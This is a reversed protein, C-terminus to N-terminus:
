KFLNLFRFGQRKIRTLWTGKLEQKAELPTEVLTRGTQDIIRLEGVAQGRQIPLELEAWHIFARCHPEESPFYSFGVPKPAYAILTAEAGEIEHSFLQDQAVLERYVLEEQFAAEFLRKADEYRSIKSCGLVVAILTRGQHHAAATLTAMSQSHYGTKGGISKAYHHKGPKLLQNFTVLEAKPSKNSKPRHYSIKSILDRFKPIALGRKMMLALDYATTVHEPHHLGHPNRYTTKQCGLHSLYSNMESMFAPVSGSLTEAIANAADNGSVMMMGHLLADLPLIEGKRLGMMTGDAELWHPLCGGMSPHKMKLAEESILVSQSLDAEKGDLAFLATGIKTTSAPYAPLYAQKEFLIVGTDANMLIASRASLEVQLQGAYLSYLPLIWLFIRM